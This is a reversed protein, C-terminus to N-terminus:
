CPKIKEFTILINILILSCKLRFIEKTYFKETPTKNSLFIGDNRYNWLSAAAQRYFRSSQRELKLIREKKSIEDQIKHKKHNFVDINMIM